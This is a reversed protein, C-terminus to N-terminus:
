NESIKTNEISHNEYVGTYGTITALNSCNYFSYEGLYSVNTLNVTTLIQNGYCAYAPVEYDEKANINITKLNVPLYYTTESATSNYKATIKAGGDFAETGFWFYLTRELDVAKDEQAPTSGIIADTNLNKGILPVTLEELNSMKDFAGKGIETVTNPVIIKKIKDNGKFAESSIAGVKDNGCVKQIDLVGNELNKYNGKADKENVFGYVTYFDDGSYKKYLLGTASSKSEEDCATLTFIAMVVLMVAVIFSIFKKM